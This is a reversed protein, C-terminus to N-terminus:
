KLLISSQIYLKLTINKQFHGIHGILKFIISHFLRVIYM